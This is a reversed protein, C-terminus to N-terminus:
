HSGMENLIFGFDKGPDVIDVMILRPIFQLQQKELQM